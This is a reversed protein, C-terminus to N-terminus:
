NVDGTSFDRKLTVIISIASDSVSYVLHYRATIM